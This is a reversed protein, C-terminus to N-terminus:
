RPWRRSRPQPWARPSWTLRQHSADEERFWPPVRGASTGNCEPQAVARRGHYLTGSHVGPWHPSRWHNSAVPEHRRRVRRMRMRIRVRPVVLLPPLGGVAKSRSQGAIHLPAYRSSALRWLAYHSSLYCLAKPTPPTSPRSAPLMRRALMHVCTCADTVDAVAHSPRRAGNPPATNDRTAALAAGLLYFAFYRARRPGASWGRPGAGTLDRTWTHPGTM